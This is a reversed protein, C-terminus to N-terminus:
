KYEECDKNKSPFIKAGMMGLYICWSPLILNVLAYLGNHMIIAISIALSINVNIWIKLFRM